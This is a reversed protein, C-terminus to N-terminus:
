AYNVRGKYHKNFQEETMKSRAFSIVEPTRDGLTNDYVPCGEISKPTGEKVYLSEQQVPVDEVQKHSSIENPIQGDIMNLMEERRKAYVPAIFKLKASGEVGELWAVKKDDIWFENGDKLEINKKM